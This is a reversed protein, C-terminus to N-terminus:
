GNHEKRKSCIEKIAEYIWATAGAAEQLLQEKEKGSLKKQLFHITDPTMQEAGLTKLAHIVLASKESIGSIEKNTRHKFEIVINKYHYKKYPGDSVYSWVNPVQTSLGLLNLAIDGCPSISWGYNRAIAHAVKDVDPEIYEQLLESYEPYDYVGRILRRIMGVKALRSLTKKCNTYNTIDLFDSIIFVEGKGNTKIREEIKDYFIEREM